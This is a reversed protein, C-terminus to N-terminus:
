VVTVMKQRCNGNEDLGQYGIVYGLVKPPEATEGVVVTEMERYYVIRVDKLPRKERHILTHKNSGWRGEEDSYIMPAWPRSLDVTWVSKEGVLEFSLLEDPHKEFYNQFDRFSSPNWDADPKHKSYKDEPHQTITKKLFNARWLYKFKSNKLNM